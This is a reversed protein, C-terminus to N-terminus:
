NLETVGHASAHEYVEHHCLVLEIRGNQEVLTSVLGRVSAMEGGDLVSSM